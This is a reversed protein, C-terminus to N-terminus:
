IIEGLKNDLGTKIMEWSIHRLCNGHPCKNINCTKCPEVPATIISDQRNYPGWREPSCPVAPCYFALLPIDFARAIHLPGTSNSIFLRSEGIIAMYQELNWQGIIKFIRETAKEDSISDILTKETYDGALIIDMDTRQRLYILIRSFMEMPLNPASGGSGPHIIIYRSGINFKKLEKQKLAIMSEDMTFQFKIEEPTPMTKIFNKILSLNYELEHRLGYKRHEYVPHNLLFSYWRYGSALRHPINAMFVSLALYAVPHFFIALEIERKKLEEAFRLHGKLGRHKGEPDYTIVEKIYPHHKLLPATYERTLFFLDANPYTGHLLSIAPTTLVVDGIRDTRILLINKLDMPFSKM